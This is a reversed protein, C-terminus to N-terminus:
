PVEKITLARVMKFSVSEIVAIKDKYRRDKWGNILVPDSSSKLASNKSHAMKNDSTSKYPINTIKDLEITIKYFKNSRANSLSRVRESDHGLMRRSGNEFRTRGFETKFKM